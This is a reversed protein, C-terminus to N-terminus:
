RGYILIADPVLILNTTAADNTLLAIRKQKWSISQKLLQDIGFEIM